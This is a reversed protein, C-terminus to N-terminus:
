AELVNYVAVGIAGIKEAYEDIIINDVRFSHPRPQIRTIAAMPPSERPM